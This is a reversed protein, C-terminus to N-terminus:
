LLKDALEKIQKVTAVRDVAPPMLETVLKDVNLTAPCTKGAFIERHGIIHDRDITVNLLTKLHNGILWKLSVMQAPTPEVPPKCSVEIGVTYYNPNVHQGLWNKKLLKATPNLVRGAHWAGQDERVLQHIAGAPDIYFHASVPGVGGPPNPNQLYHLDGHAYGDTVHVVILEPKYGQRSYFNPSPSQTINM